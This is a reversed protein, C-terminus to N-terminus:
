PKAKKATVFERQREQTRLGKTISFEVSPQELVRQIVAGLQPKIGQLKNESRRSFMFNSTMTSVRRVAFVTVAANILSRSGDVGAGGVAAGIVFSWGMESVGLQESVGCGGSCRISLAIWCHIMGDWLPFLLDIFYAAM